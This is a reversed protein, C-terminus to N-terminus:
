KHYTENNIIKYARYIQELLMVRFLQHPFTMKSFSLKLNARKLVEESIGLSGGIIFTIDSVGDISLSNIKGAFEESSMEKANIALAIVYDKPKIKSLLKEGEKRRAIEQEKNGALSDSPEDKIEIISVKAFRSLRKLYEASADKLYKEKLKGVCFINIKM